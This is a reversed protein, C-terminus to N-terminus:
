PCIKGGKGVQQRTAGFGRARLSLAVVSLSSAPMIIAALLPTILGTMCLSAALINYLISVAFNLKIVAITRRAGRVLEVLPALGPRSLYVDAAALSAEAGGHVAIGVTAAALAAADNVGDGVMVVPGAEACVAALKDEPTAAATVDSIGLQRSVVAVVDPHDGSLVAAKWGM